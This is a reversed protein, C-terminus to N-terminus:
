ESFHFSKVIGIQHLPSVQGIGAIQLVQLSSISFPRYLLGLLPKGLDKADLHNISFPM